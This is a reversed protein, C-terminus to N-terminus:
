LPLEHNEISQADPPGIASTPGLLLPHINEM